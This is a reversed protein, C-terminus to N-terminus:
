RVIDDILAVVEVARGRLAKFAKNDFEETAFRIAATIAAIAGQKDDSSVAIRRECFHPCWGEKTEADLTVKYLIYKAM